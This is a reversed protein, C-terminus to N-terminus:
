RDKHGSEDEDEVYIVRCFGGEAQYAISITKM